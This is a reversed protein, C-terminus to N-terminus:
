KNSSDGKGASSMRGLAEKPSINKNKPLALASRDKEREEDIEQLKASIEDPDLQPDLTHLADEKTMLGANMKKIVMDLKEQEPADEYQPFSVSIDKPDLSDSLAIERSQSSAGDQAGSLALAISTIAELAGTWRCIKDDRTRISAKEKISLAVGSEDTGYDEHNMLVTNISLGVTSLTKALTKEFLSMYGEFSGKPDVVDRKIETDEWNPNSDPVRINSTDYSDPIFAEDEGDPGKGSMMANDPVYTKIKSKRMFDGMNSYLEDLFMFDDIVGYYDSRAGEKNEKYVGMIRNSPTGDPNSFAIDRLGRCDPVKDLSVPSLTLANEAPNWSEQYMEYRIYGKGYVSYLVFPNQEGPIPYYDKFVIEEIRDYKRRVEMEDASYLQIIPFDSEKHDNFLKFGVAGSWSEIEAAKRLLSMKDNDSWIDDIAKQYRPNIKKNGAKAVIAPEKAFVLNSMTRSIIQPINYHLFPIDSGRAVRYFENTQAIFQPPVRTMYFRLLEDAGTADHWVRYVAQYYRQYAPTPVKIEASPKQFWSGQGVNALRAEFEAQKKIERSEAMKSILGM